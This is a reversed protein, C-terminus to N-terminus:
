AATRRSPKPLKIGAERCRDRVEYIRAKSVGMSDAIQVAPTGALLMAIVKYTNPALDSTTPPDVGFEYMASRVTHHSVGFRRCAADVSNGKRVYDAMQERRDRREEHTM